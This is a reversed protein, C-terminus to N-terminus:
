RIETSLPSSCGHFVFPVSRGSLLPFFKLGIALIGIGIQMVPLCLLPLGVFRDARRGGGGSGGAFLAALFPAPAYQNFHHHHQRRQADQDNHQLLRNKPQVRHVDDAQLVMGGLLHHRSGAQVLAPIDEGDALVFDGFIQFLIIGDNILSHLDFVWVGNVKIHLFALGHGDHAPQAALVLQIRVAHDHAFAVAHRQRLPHRQDGAEADRRHM